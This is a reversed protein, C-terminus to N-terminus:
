LSDAGSETETFVKYTPYALAVGERELLAWIDLLFDERDQMFTAWDTTATFAYVFVKWGSPGMESLNVLCFDQNFRASGQILTRIGAVVRRAQEVGTDYTLELEFKIRRKKMRSWNNISETTFHANPVTIMSNAFTRIRTTRIGIEEVTGEIGKMEIWDGIMFPRDFFIVISGLFNSLTDKSALAIAASGIGFGALLGGVSFGLNQLVLLFGVLYIFARGGKRVIPVLQDDLRSESKEANRFWIEMLADFFRLGTWSLFLTILGVMVKRLMLQIDSPIKDHPVIMYAITFGIIVVAWRLPAEAASLLEALTLREQQSHDEQLRRILVMLLKGVGFSAILIALAFGYRLSISSNIGELFTLVFDPM